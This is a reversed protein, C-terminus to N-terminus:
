HKHIDAGAAPKNEVQLLVEIEGAKEFRLKLPLKDGIKLPAKLGMLMLHLGGPALTLTKGAPLDLTGIERMRMVDGEMRMEHVEVKAAAMSAGLLRDGAVGGNRIGLYAGGVMQGPLTPRAWPHDITLPGLQYDHAAAAMAAFLCLAALTPVSALPKRM